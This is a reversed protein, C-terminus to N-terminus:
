TRSHQQSQGVQRRHVQKRYQAQKRQAISVPRRSPPPEGRRVPCQERRQQVAQAELHKAPHPEQYTGVRHQAPKKRECASASSAHSKRSATVSESRPQTHRRHVLVLVQRTLTSPVVACGAAAQTVLRGPVQDHVQFLGSASGPEEDSVPVALVGSQEIDHQGIRAGLNHESPDPHRPHVRDHLPPHLGAAPLQEVAGKDPVLPMQQMGQPLQLSPPMAVLLAANGKRQLAAAVVLAMSELTASILNDRFGIRSKHEDKIREYENLLVGAVTIGGTQSL